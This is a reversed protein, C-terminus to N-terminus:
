MVLSGGGCKFGRVTVEAEGISVGLLNLVANVVPDLLAGIPALISRVLGTLVSNLLTVDLGLLTAKIQLDSTLTSLTTQLAGTTKVTKPTLKQADAPTFVMTQEATNTAAVHAYVTIKTLNLLNLTTAAKMTPDGVGKAWAVPDSPEGVWLEAVAPIAAVTARADTAPNKGCTLNTLRAQGAAIDIAIPLYLLQGLLSGVGGVKVALRVRTQATRVVVDRDGISLWPTEQKREGLDITATISAVSPLAFGLDLAVQQSGNAVQAGVNLLDLASVGVGIVSKGDGISLKGLAGLGIMQRMDVLRTADITAAVGALAAKVTSNGQAVDATAKILDTARVKAGLLQDYSGATVGVRAALADLFTLADVKANALADYDMLSLNISGGLLSSLLANALGGNLSALRSGISLATSRSIAGIASVSVALKESKVISRGFLLPVDSSFSVQAANNPTAKAKFRKDPALKSDPEYTGLTVVLNKPNAFGNAALVMQAAKEPADIRAAAAIAALDVASQARRKELHLRGIDIVIALIAVMCISFAAALISVSGRDSSRFRRFLSHLRESM